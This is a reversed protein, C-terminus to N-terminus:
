RSEWFEKDIVAREEDNTLRGSKLLAQAVSEVARWVPPKDLLKQTEDQYRRVIRLYEKDSMPMAQLLIDAISIYDDWRGDTPAYDGNRVIQLAELTHKEFHERLLFPNKPPGRSLMLSKASALSGALLEKVVPGLRAGNPWQMKTNPHSGMEVIELIAGFWYAVVVHGAEHHAAMIQIDEDM